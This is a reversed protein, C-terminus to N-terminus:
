PGQVTVEFPISYASQATECFFRMKVRYVAVVGSAPIGGVRSMTFETVTSPLTAM